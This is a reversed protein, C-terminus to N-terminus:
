PRKVFAKVISALTAADKENLPGTSREMIGDLRCLQDETLRGRNGPELMPRIIIAGGGGGTM